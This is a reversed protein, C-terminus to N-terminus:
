GRVAADAALSAGRRLLRREEVRGQCAPALCAIRRELVRAIVAPILGLRTETLAFRARPSAMVVDCVSVLGLGGGYAPGQMLGIVLTGLRDLTELM